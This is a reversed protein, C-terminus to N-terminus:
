FQFVRQSQKYSVPVRLHFKIKLANLFLRTSIEPNFYFVSIFLVLIWGAAAALGQLLQGGALRRLSSQYKAPVM